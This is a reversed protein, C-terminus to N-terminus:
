FDAASKKVIFLRNKRRTVIVDATVSKAAKRYTEFASMINSFGSLDAEVVIAPSEIFEQIEREYKM